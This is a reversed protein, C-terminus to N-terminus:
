SMDNSSLGYDKPAVPLAAGALSAAAAPTPGPVVSGAPPLVAYSYYNYSGVRSAGRHSCLTCGWWGRRRGVVFLLGAAGVAVLPGLVYGAVKGAPVVDAAPTPTAPM